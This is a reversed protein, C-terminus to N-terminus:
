SIVTDSKANGRKRAVTMLNNCFVSSDVILMSQTDLCILIKSLKMRSCLRVHFVDITGTIELCTHIPPVHM